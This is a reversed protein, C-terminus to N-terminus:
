FPYCFEGKKYSASMFLALMFLPMRHGKQEAVLFFFFNDRRFIIQGASTSPMHTYGVSTWLSKSSLPREESGLLLSTDGETGRSHTFPPCVYLAFKPYMFSKHCGMGLSSISLSMKVYFDYFFFRLFCSNEWQQRMRRRDTM